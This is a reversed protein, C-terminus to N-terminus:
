KLSSLDAMEQFLSCFIGCSKLMGNTGYDSLQCVKTGCGQCFSGVTPHQSDHIVGLVRPWKPRLFERSGVVFEGTIAFTEM